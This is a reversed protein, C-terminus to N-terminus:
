GCSLRHGRKPPSGGDFMVQWQGPDAGPTGAVVRDESAMEIETIGRTVM